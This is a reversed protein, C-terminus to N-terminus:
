LKMEVRGLGREEGELRLRSWCGLLISWLGRPAGLIREPPETLVVKM